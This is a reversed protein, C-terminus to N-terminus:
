PTRPCASRGARRRRCASARARPRPLESSCRRMTEPAEVSVMCTARRISPWSRACPCRWAAGSRRRAAARAADRSSALDEREVQAQRREAAVDLAHARGREGVEALLRPPQGDALGRQEDRQRLRGLPAAGVAVRLRRAGGAVAHECRATPRRRSRAPAFGVRALSSGTGVTRRANGWARGAGRRLRPPPRRRGLGHVPQGEVAVHLRRQLVEGLLLRLEEALLQRGGDEDDVVRRALHDGVDARGAIEVVGAEAGDVHDVATREGPEVSFGNM